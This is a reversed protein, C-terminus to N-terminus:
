EVEYFYSIASSNLSILVGTEITIKIWTSSNSQILADFDSFSMNLKLEEGNTQIIVLM